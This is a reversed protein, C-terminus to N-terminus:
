FGASLEVGLTFATQSDISSGVGVNNGLFARGIDKVSSGPFFVSFFPQIRFNNINYGLNGNIEFGMYSSNLDGLPCCLLPLTYEAALKPAAIAATM